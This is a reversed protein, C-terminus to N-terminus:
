SAAAFATRADEAESLMALWFLIHELARSEMLGNARLVAFLPEGDVTESRLGAATVRFNAARLQSQVDTLQNETVGRRLAQERGSQASLESTFIVLAIQSVALSWQNSTQCQDIANQVPRAFDRDRAIASKARDLDSASLSQRICDAGDTAHVQPTFALTLVAGLLVRGLM